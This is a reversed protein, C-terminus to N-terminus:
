PGEGAPAEGHEITGNGTVARHRIPLQYVPERIIKRVPPGSRGPRCRGSATVQQFREAPYAVPPRALPPIMRHRRHQRQSGPRHDGPGPREGRDGPPGGIHGGAHHFVQVPPAPGRPWTGPRRRSCRDPPHDGASIGSGQVRHGAGPQDLPRARGPVQGAGTVAAVLCRQDRDPHVSLGDPACLVGVAALHVQQRSQGALSADDCGLGLDAGLRALDRHDDGQQIAHVQGPNTM